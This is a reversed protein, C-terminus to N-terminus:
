KAAVWPLPDFARGQHRIEFYLGSTEAGGTAGVTAVADGGHVADGLRKLVAENNGYITMYGQGHDLILLNGFGRMWDAFVVRGAAVARVEEGERAAIFVGKGVGPQGPRPTGFRGQLEGRVPLRLRGKMEAFAREPTGREPIAGNRRAGSSERKAPAPASKLTRALEDVLKALRSEDRRLRDVEARQRRLDGAVRDLARRREAQERELVKRERAAAEGLAALEASKEGALRELDGLRALDRRMAAVFDLQARSLYALYALHRATRSVDEGSLLVRLANPEGVTYRRHLLRGLDGTRADLAAAARRTEEALRTQEARAARQERALEALTRNAESIAQESERLADVAEDRRGESASLEGRLAEIRARLAKLDDAEAAAAPAACLAAALAAAAARGRIL